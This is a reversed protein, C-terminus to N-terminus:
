GGLSDLSWELHGDDKREIGLKWRIGAEDAAELDDDHWLLFAVSAIDLASQAWENDGGSLDVTVVDFHFARLAEIESEWTEPAAPLKVSFAEAAAPQDQAHLYISRWSADLTLEPLHPLIEHGLEPPHTTVIFRATGSRALIRIESVIGPTPPSFREELSAETERPAFLYERGSEDAICHVEVPMVVGAHDIEADWLSRTADLVVQGPPPALLRELAEQWDGALLRRRITGREDWWAHARLGRISVGWRSARADHVKELTNELSLPARQEEEVAAARAFVQRILERIAAPSALAIDVDLDTRARLEDIPADKLPSDVIVKLTSETKLIPLTLHALAWEPSVLAAAELDVAESEPFVYPLDFQSALGWEVEEESVIGCAVLAEGFFGGKERQYELAQSIDDESIRGLGALIDGISRRETM